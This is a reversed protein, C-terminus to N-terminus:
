DYLIEIYKTTREIIINILEEKSPEKRILKFNSILMNMCTILNFV